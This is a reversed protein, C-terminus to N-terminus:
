ILSGRNRAGHYIGILLLAGAIFLLFDYLFTVRGSYRNSVLPKHIRPWFPGVALVSCFELLLALRPPTLCHSALLPTKSSPARACYDTGWTVGSIKQFQA